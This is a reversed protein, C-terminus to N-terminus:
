KESQRGHCGQPPQRVQLFCTALGPWNGAVQRPLQDAIDNAIDYRIYQNGCAFFYAKGNPWVVATTINM